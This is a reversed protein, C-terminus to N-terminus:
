GKVGSTVRRIADRTEEVMIGKVVRRTAVEIQRADADITNGSVTVPVNVTLPGINTVAIPPPTGRSAVDEVRALALVNAQIQGPLLQGRDVQSKLRATTEKETQLAIADSEQKSAGNRNARLGAVRGADQSRAKIEAEVEGQYASKEEKHKKGAGPVSKDLKKSLEALRKKQSPSKSKKKSLYAFEETDSILTSADDAAKIEAAAAAKEEDVKKKDRNRKSAALREEEKNLAEERAAIQIENQKRVEAEKKLAAPSLIGSSRRNADKEKQLEARKQNLRVQSGSDEYDYELEQALDARLKETKAMQQTQAELLKAKQTTDELADGILSIAAVIGAAALGLPGFAALGAIGMAAFATGTTGLVGVVDGLVGVIKFFVDAFSTAVGIIKEIKGPLENVPGILEKIKEWLSKVADGLVKGLGKAGEGSIDFYSGIDAVIAQIAEGLGSDYVASAAATIKDQLAEIGGGLSNAKLELTNGFDSEAIKGLYAQWSASGKEITTTIGKFTVEFQDGVSKAKIGFEKLRETEGTGADALAEAVDSTSKGPTGAAISALNKVSGVSADLGLGALRNSTKIGDDVNLGRVARLGAIQDTAAQDGGLNSSLAARNAAFDSGRSIVQQLVGGGVAAAGTVAGLAATGVSSAAGKLAGGAAGGLGSFRGKVVVNSLAEAKARAEDIAKGYKRAAAVANEMSARAREAAEKSAASMARQAEREARARERSSAVAERTRAREAATAERAGDRAAKAAASAETKATKAAAALATQAAKAKVGLDKVADAAAEIQTPPGFGKQAKSLGELRKRAQELGAQAKQAIQELATLGTAGKVKLEIVQTEVVRESM